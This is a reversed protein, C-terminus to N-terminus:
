LFRCDNEYYKSIKQHKVLNEKWWLHFPARNNTILMINVAQRVIQWAFSFFLSPLNWRFSSGTEFIRHAIAPALNRFITGAFVFNQSDSFIKLDLILSRIGFWQEMTWTWDAFGLDTLNMEYILNKNSNVM